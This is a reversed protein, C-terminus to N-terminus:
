KLKRLKAKRMKIKEAMTLKKQMKENQKDITVMFITNDEAGPTEEFGKEEYELVETDTDKVVVGVSFSSFHQPM